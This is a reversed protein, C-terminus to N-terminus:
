LKFVQTSSNTSALWRCKDCHSCHEHRQLVSCPACEMRSCLAQMEVVGSHLLCCSQPVVEFKWKKLFEIFSHEQEEESKLRRPTNSIQAGKPECSNRQPRHEMTDPEDFKPHRSAEMDSFNKWGDEADNTKDRNCWVLFAKSIEDINSRQKVPRLCMEALDKSMVEFCSESRWSLKAPIGLRRCRRIEKRDVKAYPQKGTTTFYILYGFSFIDASPKPLKGGQLEVEPAMWRPTGGLPKVCSTLLRSLGFDVLQPHMSPQREILVNDSKLDGHVVVPSRSHLYSLATTIGAIVQFRQTHGMIDSIHFKFTRLSEGNVFELVLGFRNSKVDIVAGFCQVLNPHRAHRLIRLENCLEKIGKSNAEIKPLKVAVSAGHFSGMVVSGFGGEGLVCGTRLKMDEPPIYWQEKEVLAKIDALCEGAQSNASNFIRGTVTTRPLSLRSESGISDCGDVAERSRGETEADSEHLISAADAGVDLQAPPPEHPFPEEKRYRM